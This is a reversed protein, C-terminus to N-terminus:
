TGSDTSALFMISGNWRWSVIRYTNISDAGWDPEAGLWKISGSSVAWTIDKAASAHQRIIITGSASGNTPVTLTATVTGTASVLSLTQHNQLNLNITRTTGTPTGVLETEWHVGRSPRVIGNNQIYLASFRGDAVTSVTFSIPFSEETSDGVVTSAIHWTNAALNAPGTGIQFGYLIGGNNASFLRISPLATSSTGPILDLGISATGAEDHPTVSIIRTTGTTGSTASTNACFKGTTGTGLVLPGIMNAKGANDFTLWPTITSSGGSYGGITLGRLTGGASGNQPGIEFNAAAVGRLQLFENSTASTFTNYIRFTQANTSNRQSSIGADDRYFRVDTHVGLYGGSGAQVVFGSSQSILGTTTFRALDTGQLSFGVYGSQGYIGTVAGGYNWLLSRVSNSGQVQNFTIAGTTTIAGNFNSIGSEINLAYANTITANTGAVPPGSISLTSATTITSAGVFGYTPAQIRIARQTTLAGTAFQVTRALNFNVDTAETSATLTTHAGGTLTLATPSGSTSVSQTISQSGITLTGNIGAPTKLRVHNSAERYWGFEPTSSATIYSGSTWGFVTGTFGIVYGNGQILLGDNALRTTYSGVLHGSTNLTLSPTFTGASNYHGFTLDRNSGGASGIASGIQYAAGANAKFQLNEFSTASTYTNYLCFTQANTSNRQQITNGSVSSIVNTLVPVSFSASAGLTLITSTSSATRFIHQGGNHGGTDYYTADSFTSIRAPGYTSTPMSLGASALGLTGGVTLNRSFFGDRPRTAGSKGIDYTADTFLLDGAFTKTGAFTQAGTTVLGRAAAGASPIYLLIEGTGLDTTMSVDPAASPEPGIGFTIASNTSGNVSTIAATLATQWSGDDRLFKTGDSTGTISLKSIAISGALMTNTVVGSAITTAFSGNGSGTVNGTLTITQNTTLYGAPNGSLPYADTIGYGSLTTPTSTITSWAQNHAAPTFTSPIGSLSSYAGDFLTPKNSLSDYDGDFLTPLNSLSFYDGDFLSPKDSLDDYSGSFNSTGAGIYDRASIEGSLELFGRGYSNTTLAAISTLDSDLPQYSSAVASTTAYSSLDQDGTNTGSLAIVPAPVSSLKGWDLDTIWSPNSYSGDLAVYTSAATSTTLYPSLDIAGVASTVFQTTALQTTNTGGSATPATPVGSFSPSNIPAYASFDPTTAATTQVSNDSFIIGGSPAVIEGNINQYTAKDAVYSIFIFANSGVNILANNNSSKLVTTRTLTNVASYTYIGIEWAAGNEIVAYCIDGISMVSSFRRFGAPASSLILTSSTGPSGSIREKVRDAIINSV